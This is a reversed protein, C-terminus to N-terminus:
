NPQCNRQCLWEAEAILSTALHNTQEEAARREKLDRVAVCLACDCM